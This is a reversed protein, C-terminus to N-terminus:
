ITSAWRLWDALRLELVGNAFNHHTPL